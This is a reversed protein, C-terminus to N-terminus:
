QVPILAQDHYMAIVADCTKRAAAHFITDAPHPGTVNINERRLIEIAPRIIKDEEDGMAGNEGAHPNLAAVALKPVVLVHGPSKPHIDMFALEGDTEYVREAPLEGSVIRAFLSAM